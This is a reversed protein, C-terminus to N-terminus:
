SKPKYRLSLPNQDCHDGHWRKYNAPDVTLECYSCFKYKELQWEKSNRIESMRIAQRKRSKVNKKKWKPDNFLISNTKSIREKTEDTVIKNNNAIKIKEKHELSMTRGSAGEGGDTFNLLIGTNNDKRGWWRIYRRELAFAGIETLNNELIIIRSRDKPTPVGRNNKTDRHQKWARNGCGKGIYYPTGDNRIYAYTYYLNQLYM